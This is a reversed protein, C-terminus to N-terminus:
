DLRDYESGVKKEVKIKIKSMEVDKWSFLLDSM